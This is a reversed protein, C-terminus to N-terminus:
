NRQKKLDSIWEEEELNKQIKRMREPRRRRFDIKKRECAMILRERVNKLDKHTYGNTGPKGNNM